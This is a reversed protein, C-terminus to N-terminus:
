KKYGGGGNREPAHKLHDAEDIDHDNVQSSWMKVAASISFFFLWGFLCM